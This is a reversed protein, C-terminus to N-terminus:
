RIIRDALMGVSIAFYYSRNWHMLTRFNDYVIFARGQMDDPTIIWANFDASPLTSGDPLQVGLHQWQTLSKAQATELGALNKQFNAPLRVERGWNQGPQWGETALYNATSAFVDDVNKWIDIYGDGDGDSGYKVYSSPMFQSQGMAGAWSGKLKDLTTHGQKVILLASMLEKTFFAERRGEFALTAMASIIDENGQLRGFDSEMAWLAVIYREPVGYRSTAISLKPLYEQYKEKAQSVKRATLVRRLYSDLTTTKELQTRDATVIRSIFHVNAFANDAIETPIGQELAYQKLLKVYEPFSAPVRPKEFAPLPPLTRMGSSTASTPTNMVHSRDGVRHKGACGALLAAAILLSIASLKM